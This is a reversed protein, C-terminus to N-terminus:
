KQKKMLNINKDPFIFNNDFIEQEETKTIEKRECKMWKYSSFYCSLKSITKYEDIINKDLLYKNIIIEPFYYLFITIGIKNNYYAKIFQNIYDKLLDLKKFMSNYNKKFRRKRNGEIKNYFKNFLPYFNNKILEYATEFNQFIKKIKINVIYKYDTYYYEDQHYHCYCKHCLFFEM